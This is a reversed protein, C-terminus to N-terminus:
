KRTVTTKVRGPIPCLAEDFQKMVELVQKAKQHDEKFM